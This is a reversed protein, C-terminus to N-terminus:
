PFHTDVYFSQVEPVRYGAEGVAQWIFSDRAEVVAASRGVFRMGDPPVGLNTAM